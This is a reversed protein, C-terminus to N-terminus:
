SETSASPPTPPTTGIVHFNWIQLQDPSYGWSDDDMQVFPNAAGAPPPTLGDWDAPLMGGLNPDTAYLDFYVARATLDGTLM